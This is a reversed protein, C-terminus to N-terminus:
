HSRVHASRISNTLKGVTTSPNGYPAGEELRRSLQREAREEAEDVNEILDDFNLEKSGQRDYDPRVAGLATQMQHRDRPGDFDRVHLILWLEFCPNSRAVGIGVAECMQVAEEFRPHEDKDFVVWVEDNKEYHNNGRSRQSKIAEKARETITMPAGVGKIVEVDILTQGYSRKFSQFYGPETKEGECFVVFRKRPEHTARRRRLDSTQRVRRKALKAVRNIELQCLAM